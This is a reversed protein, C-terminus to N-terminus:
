DDQDNQPRQSKEREVGAAQDVNKQDDGHDNQDDSQQLAPSNKLPAFSLFLPRILLCILIKPTRGHSNHRLRYFGPWDRRATRLSLGQLRFLFRPRSLPFQHKENHSSNREDFADGQKKQDV